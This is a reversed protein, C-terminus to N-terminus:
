PSRGYSTLTEAPTRYGLAVHPRENNYFYEWRLLLSRIDELRHSPMRYCRWFEQRSTGNMREVAGNIKPSRPPIVVQRCTGTNEYQEDCWKKFEGKFEAGGDTQICRIPFPFVTAAREIAKVAAASTLEACLCVVVMRSVVDVVTIQYRMTGQGIRIRVSDIEALDGPRQPTQPPLFPLRKSTFVGKGGWSRAPVIKNAKLLKMVLRDAQAFSIIHGERRLMVAVKRGGLGLHENRLAVFREITGRSLTTKRVRRPRRSRPILKKIKGARRYRDWRYLTAPSINMLPASKVFSVGADRAERARKIMDMKRKVQPDSWIHVPTTFIRASQNRQRSLPYLQQM